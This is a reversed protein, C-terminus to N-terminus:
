AKGSKINDYERPFDSTKRLRRIVSALRSYSLSYNDPLAPHMEKWRLSGEYRADKMQIKNLFQEYVVNESELVVGFSELDWLKWAEQKLSSNEEEQEADLRLM